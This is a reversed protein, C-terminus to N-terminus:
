MCIKVQTAEEAIRTRALAMYEPKLEIGTGVGDPMALRGQADLQPAVCRVEHVAYTCKGMPEAVSFRLHFGRIETIKM